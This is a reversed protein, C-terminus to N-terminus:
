KKEKDFNPKLEYMWEVGNKNELKEFIYYGKEENLLKTTSILNILNAQENNMIIPVKLDYNHSDKKTKWENFVQLCDKIKDEDFLIDFWPREIGLTGFKVNSVCLCIDLNQKFLKKKEETIFVKKKLPKIQSVKKPCIESRFDQFFECMCTMHESCKNLLNFMIFIKCHKVTIYCYKRVDSKINNIVSSLPNIIGQIEFLTMKNANKIGISIYSANREQWTFEDQINKPISGSKPSETSSEDGSEESEEFNQMQRRKKVIVGTEHPSYKVITKMLIIIKKLVFQNSSCIYDNLKCINELKPNQIKFKYIDIYLLKLLNLNSSEVSIRYLIIIYLLIYFFFNNFYNFLIYGVKDENIKQVVSYYDVFFSDYIVGLIILLVYIISWILISFKYKSNNDNYFLILIIPAINLFVIYGFYGIGINTSLVFYILGIEFFIFTILMNTVIAISYSIFCLFLGIMVVSIGFPGIIFGVITIITRYTSPNKFLVNFVGDFVFYIGFCIGFIIIIISVLITTIDLCLSNKTKFEPLVDKDENKDVIKKFM